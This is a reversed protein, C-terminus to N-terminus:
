ESVVLLNGRTLQHIVYCFGLSMEEDAMLERSLRVSIIGTGPNRSMEIIHIIPRQTEFSAIALNMGAIIANMRAMARDHSEISM